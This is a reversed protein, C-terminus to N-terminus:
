RSEGNGKHLMISSWMERGGVVAGLNNVHLSSAIDNSMGFLSMVSYKLLTYVVQGLNWAKDANSMQDVGPPLVAEFLYRRFVYATDQNQFFRNVTRAPLSGGREQLSYEYVDGIRENTATDVIETRRVGQRRQLGEAQEAETNAYTPVHIPDPIEAATLEIQRMFERRPPIVGRARAFRRREESAPLEKRRLIEQAARRDVNWLAIAQQSRFLM